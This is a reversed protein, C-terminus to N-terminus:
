YFSRMGRTIKERHEHMCDECFILNCHECKDAKKSPGFSVLYEQEILIECFSNCKSCMINPSVDKIGLLEDITLGIAIAIKEAACISPKVNQTEIKHIYTREMGAKVSLESRSLGLARRFLAIRVGISNSKLEM